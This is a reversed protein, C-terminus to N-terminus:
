PIQKLFIITAGLLNHRMDQQTTDLLTNSWYDNEHVM